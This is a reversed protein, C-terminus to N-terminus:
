NTIDVAREMDKLIILSDLNEEADWLVQSTSWSQIKKKHPQTIKAAFVM